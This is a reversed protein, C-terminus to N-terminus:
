NQYNRVTVGKAKTQNNWQQEITSNDCLGFERDPLGSSLETQLLEVNKDIVMQPVKSDAM